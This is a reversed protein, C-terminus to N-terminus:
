LKDLVITFWDHTKKNFSYLERTDCSGSGGHTEESLEKFYVSFVCYLGLTQNAVNQGLVQNFM